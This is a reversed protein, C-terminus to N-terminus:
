RGSVRQGVPVWARVKRFGADQARAALMDREVKALAEVRRPDRKDFLLEPMVAAAILPRCEIPMRPTDTDADGTFDLAPPRVNYALELLLPCEPWPALRLYDVGARSLFTGYRPIGPSINRPYRTRFEAETIVLLEDGTDLEQLNPWALIDDPALVEDAYITFSGTTSGGTYTTELFLTDTGAVHRSIRHPIGDSDHLLKRTAVSNLLRGDLTVANGEIALISGTIQGTTVIQTTRRAWRWPRLGCLWRYKENVILRADTARNAKAISTATPLIDGVRRLAHLLIESGTELVDTSM